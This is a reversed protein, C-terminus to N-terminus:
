TSSNARAADSVADVVASPRDFQIYRKGAAALAEPNVVHVPKGAAYSTIQEFVDAFQIEFEERTVYGIHPTCVVNPTGLLPDSRDHNHGAQAVHTHARPANSGVTNTYSRHIRRRHRDIPL